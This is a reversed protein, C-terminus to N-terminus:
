GARQSMAHCSAHGFRSARAPRECATSKRHAPKCRGMLSQPSLRGRTHCAKARRGLWRAASASLGAGWRPGSWRLYPGSVRLPLAATRAWASQLAPLAPVPSACPAGSAPAPLSASPPFSFHSRKNHPAASPPRCLPTGRADATCLTVSYMLSKRNKLADSIGSATACGVTARVISVLVRYCRARHALSSTRLRIRLAARRDSAPM